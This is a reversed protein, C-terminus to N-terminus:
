SPNFMSQIRKKRSVRRLWVGAGFLAVLLPLGAINFTKIFTKVGADTETLPNFRQEKARMVAIGERHNLYDIVNLAFVANPGRGGEDIVVDKLMEASGMVFIRGPKGKAIFPDRRAVKSLDIGPTQNPEAAKPEEGEPTKVERVPLTKGAFYSPFEGEILWGLPRSRMEDAKAPPRLFMPDLNIRGKLEWSRESSALLREAKLGNAQIRDQLIEVPAAKLAVMGKINELFKLGTNIFQKQILPAYYIARDGGGFQAPMQQRYCNEDLVYSNSIRVGYHALLPEIGTEVPLHVPPQGQMQAEEFPDLFLALSKGQMLFQDIQYLEYDSFAERPRAIILCAIGEPIEGTSMEVPKLAYSQSILERLNGYAQPDERGPAAGAAGALPATRHSALYGLGDHIDILSEVSGEIMKALSDADVLKYQTGIIPLRVVDILPLTVSRGRHEVVMGIVGAGAALKGDSSAPWSLSLLNHAKSLEELNADPPPSVFEYDLKGYTKANISTVTRAVEAPLQPLQRLGMFPAVTNLTASLYLRVKIKETLRLLASIKHNMKQVATTIRYELGDTTAITPIREILDGHIMVLGMYVRQFKVEDKDVAQIQIPHIGYASALKQNERAEAPIDGEEASVDHFRYNFFRNAQVAYEELLDRLYRETGNYPPPLNRSFFVDITLPESLTSVVKKSAPSLSYTKGASLDFRLFLTIGAMNVLVVALLYLGFKLYAASRNKQPM